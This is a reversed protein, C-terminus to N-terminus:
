LINTPLEYNKQKAKSHFWYSTYSHDKLTLSDESGEDDRDTLHLSYYMVWLLQSAYVM